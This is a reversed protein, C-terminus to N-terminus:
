LPMFTAEACLRFISSYILYAEKQSPLVKYYLKVYDSNDARFKRTFVPISVAM